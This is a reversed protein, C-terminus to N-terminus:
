EENGYGAEECFGKWLEVFDVIAMLFERNSPCATRGAKGVPFYCAWVNEDRNEWAFKIGRRIAQEVKKDEGDFDSLLAAAEYLGNSLTAMPRKVLLMTTNKALQFGECDSPIGLEKLAIHIIYSSSCKHLYQARNKAHKLAAEMTSGM